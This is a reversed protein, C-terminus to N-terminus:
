WITDLMTEIEKEVRPDHEDRLALALSIPDVYGKKVPVAPYRWVEIQIAGELDNKGAFANAKDMKRYRDESIAYTQMQEENLMSYTALANIGSVGLEDSEMRLSDCYFRKRVPSLLWPQAAEYLVHGKHLLYIRKFNSADSELRALGLDVLVNMAVTITVYKYPLLAELERATKGDISQVQLAYLLLYQAPASLEHVQKKSSVKTALLLMPLSVYMGSVIFYVGQAVLRNRQNYDLSKFRYVLPIGLTEKVRIAMRAYEMPKYHQEAKPTALLYEQGQFVFRDFQFMLRIETWLQKTEAANLPKLEVEVGSIDLRDSMFNDRKIVKM